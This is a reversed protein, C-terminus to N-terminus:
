FNTLEIEANTELQKPQTQENDNHELVYPDDNGKIAKILKRDTKPTEVGRQTKLDLDSQKQLNQEPKKQKKGNETVQGDTAKGRKCRRSVCNYCCSGVLILLLFIIPVGFYLLVTGVIIMLFPDNPDKSLSSQKSESMERVDKGTADNEDTLTDHDLSDLDKIPSRAPGTVTFIIPEESMNIITVYQEDNIVLDGRTFSQLGKVKSRDVQNQGKLSELPSDTIWYM